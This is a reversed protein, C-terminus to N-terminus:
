FIKNFNSLKHARIEGSGVGILTMLRFKM